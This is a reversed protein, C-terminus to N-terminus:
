LKVWYKETKSSRIGEKMTVTSTIKSYLFKNYEIMTKKTTDLTLIDAGNFRVNRKLPKAYALFDLWPKWCKNYLGNTDAWRLSMSSSNYSGQPYANGLSDNQMGRYFLIRLNAKNIGLDFEPSSGKQKVYPITWSRSTNVTDQHTLILTTSAKTSIEQGGNGIKYTTWADSEDKLAEDGSDQEQSLKFGNSENLALEYEPEAKSTHDVYTQDNIVENLTVIKVTKDIPNFIYGLGFMNKIAIIFEGVTMDPLHNAIAITTEWSNVGTVVKDLAYNNYVVATAIEPDDLWAGYVLYGFLAFTKRIVQVLYPFPTIAYFSSSTTNTPFSGGHYYNLYGKFNTNKDGYFSENKVPFLAYNESSNDFVLIDTGLDLSRMSVGNIKSQFDGADSLFSYQYGKKNPKINTLQGAKYLLDKIYLEAAIKTNLNNQNSIIEPNGLLRKNKKTPSATSPFSITGPIGDTMFFPSTTELTISAGEGLDLYEDGIKIAFSM